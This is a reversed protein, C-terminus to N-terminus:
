VIKESLRKFLKVVWCKKREAEEKRRKEAEKERIHRTAKRQKRYEAVEVRLALTASDDPVIQISKRQSSPSPSSSASSSPSTTTSRKWPANTRQFCIMEFPPMTRPDKPHPNFSWKPVETIEGSKSKRKLDEKLYARRWEYCKGPEPNCFPSCATSSDVFCIPYKEGNIVLHTYPAMRKFRQHELLNVTPQQAEHLLPNNVAHQHGSM